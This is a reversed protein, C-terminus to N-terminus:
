TAIRAYLGMTHFWLGMVTSMTPVLYQTFVVAIPLTAVGVILVQLVTLINRRSALQHEFRLFGVLGTAVGILFIAAGFGAWAIGTLFVIQAFQDRAGGFVAIAMPSAGAAAVFGLLLARGLEHWTFTLFSAGAWHDAWGDGFMTSVGSRLVLVLVAGWLLLGGFALVTPVFLM